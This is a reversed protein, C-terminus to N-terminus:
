GLAQRRLPLNAHRFQKALCRERNRGPRSSQRQLPPINQHGDRPTIAEYAARVCWLCIANSGRGGGFPQRTQYGIARSSDDDRVPHNAPEDRLFQEPTTPRIWTSAADITM